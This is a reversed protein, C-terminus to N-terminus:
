CEALVRDAAECEEKKHQDREALHKAEEYLQCRREKELAEECECEAQDRGEMAERVAKVQADEAM